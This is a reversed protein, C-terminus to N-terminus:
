LLHLQRSQPEKKEIIQDTLKLAGILLSSDPDHLAMREQIQAEDFNAYCYRCGHPCCNYEGIDTVALCHCHPRVQAERFTEHRGTLQDLWLQDICSRTVIGGAALAPDEACLQLTMGYQRGIAALEVALSRFRDFDCRDLNMQKLHRQTNKYDTDLYSIIVQKTSGTLLGCLKAFARQHWAEDLTPTFFIPDYRLIMAQPGLVRALQVFAEIVKRKNGVYPEIDPGYPTITVQFGLPLSRLQSLIPLMPAPNKTMFIVADVVEPQLRIRQVQKPNFPNRVDVFEATFRNLLWQSYFACVDTRQSCTLIM